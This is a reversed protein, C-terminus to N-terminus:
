EHIGRSYHTAMVFPEASLRGRPSPFYVEITVEILDDSLKKILTKRTFVGDSDASGFQDVARAPERVDAAADFHMTRLRELQNRAILSAAYYDTGLKMQRLSMIGLTVFSGMAGAVIALSLVVEAFSFGARSRSNKFTIIPKQRM